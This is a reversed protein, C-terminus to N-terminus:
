QLEGPYSPEEAFCYTCPEDLAFLHLLRVSFFIYALAEIFITRYNRWHSVRFLPITILCGSQAMEANLVDGRWIQVM